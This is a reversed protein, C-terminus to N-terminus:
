QTTSCRATATSSRIETKTWSRNAKRSATSEPMDASSCNSKAPTTCCPSAASTFGRTAPPTLLNKGDTELKKNAAASTLGQPGSNFKAYIDELTGKHDDVSVNKRLEDQEAKARAERDAIQKACVVKSFWGPIIWDLAFDM